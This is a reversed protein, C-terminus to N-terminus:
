IESIASATFNDFKHVFVGYSSKGFPHCLVGFPAHIHDRLGNLNKTVGLIDRFSSFSSVEFKTSQNAMHRKLM